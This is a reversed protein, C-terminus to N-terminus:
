MGSVTKGYHMVSYYDYPVGRQDTTRKEFNREFGSRINEEIIEVFSDRDSRSQEHNFGVAHGIEHSVTGLQSFYLLLTDLFTVNM